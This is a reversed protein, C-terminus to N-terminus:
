AKNVLPSAPVVSDKPVTALMAVDRASMTPPIPALGDPTKIYAPAGITQRVCTATKPDVVIFCLKSDTNPVAGLDEQIHLLGGGGGNEQQANIDPLEWFSQHPRPFLFPQAFGQAVPDQFTFSGAPDPFQVGVYREYELVFVDGPELAYDLTTSTLFMTGLTTGANEDTLGAYLILSVVRGNTPERQSTLTWKRDYFVVRQKSDKQKEDIIYVHHTLNVASATAKNAVVQGATLVTATQLQGGYYLPRLPWRTLSAKPWIWFLEVPLAYYITLLAIAVNNAHDDPDGFNRGFCQKMIVRMSAGAGGSTFDLRGQTSDGGKILFKDVFQFLTAGLVGSGGAADTAFTHMDQQVIWAAVVPEQWSLPDSLFTYDQQDQSSHFWKGGSLPVSCVQAM